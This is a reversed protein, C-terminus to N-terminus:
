DSIFQGFINVKRFFFQTKDPASKLGGKRLLQFYEHIITFMEAKTHPQLVSDDLYTLAKKKKILPEFNVVKMRNFWQPLGCLGFFGVQYTSQKEGIVSNSLKQTEPSLPVQHYACSLDSSTFSKGNVRTM